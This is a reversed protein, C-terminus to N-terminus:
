KSSQMDQRITAFLKDKAANFAALKKQDAANFSYIRPGAYPDLVEHAMTPMAYEIKDSENMTHPASRLTDLVEQTTTLKRAVGEVTATLDTRRAANGWCPYIWRNVKDQPVVFLLLNGKGTHLEDHMKELAEFKARYKDYYQQLNFQESMWRTSFKAVRNGTWDPNDMFYGFTCSGSEGANGFLAGNLFIADCIYFNNFSRDTGFRLFQFDDGVQKTNVLNFFFKYMLSKFRWEWRQGHYFVYNGKAREEKEKTHCAKLAARAEPTLRTQHHRIQALVMAINQCFHKGTQTTGCSDSTCQPFFLDPATYVHDAFTSGLTYDVIDAPNESNKGVLNKIIKKDDPQIISYLYGLVELDITHINKKVYEILTHRLLSSKLSDALLYDNKSAKLAKKIIIEDFGPHFECVMEVAKIDCHLFDGIRELVLDKLMTSEPYLYVLKCIRDLPVFKVKWNYYAYTIFFNKHQPYKLFNEQNFNDYTVVFVEHTAAGVGHITSHASVIPLCLVAGMCLRWAIQKLKNM